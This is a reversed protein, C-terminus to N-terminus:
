EGDSAEFEDEVVRNSDVLVNPDAGAKEVLWQIFGLSAPMGAKWDVLGNRFDVGRALLAKCADWKRERRIDSFVSLFIEESVRQGFNVVLERASWSWM